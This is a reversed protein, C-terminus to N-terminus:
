RDPFLVRTTYVVLFWSLNLFFLHYLPMTLIVLIGSSWLLLRPCIRVSLWWLFTLLVLVLLQLLWYSHRPLVASSYPVLDLITWHHGIWTWLSTSLSWIIGWFCCSWLSGLKGWLLHLPFIHTVFARHALCLLFGLNPHSQSPVWSLMWRCSSPTLITM